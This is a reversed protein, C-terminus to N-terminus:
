GSVAKKADDLLHGWTSPMKEGFPGKKSRWYALMQPFQNFDLDGEKIIRRDLPLIRLGALKKDRAHYERDELFDQLIRALVSPDDTGIREKVGNKREMLVDYASRAADAMPGQTVRAVYIARMIHHLAAQGIEPLWILVGSRMEEVRELHFVQHCFTCSTVLNDIQYNQPNMDQHLIEQYKEAHFGCFQCTHNDREFIKSKLQKLDDGKYVAKTSVPKAGTLRGVGIKLPLYSM